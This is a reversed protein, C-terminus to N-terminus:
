KLGLARFAEERTAVVPFLSGITLMDLIEKITAKAVVALGVGQGRMAKGIGILMGIGISGIFEVETLDIVAPKSRGVTHRTLKSEVAGVGAPDLRGDLAVITFADAAEVLKLKTM